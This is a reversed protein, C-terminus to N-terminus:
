RLRQLAIPFHIAFDANKFGAAPKNKMLIKQQFVIKFSILPYIFSFTYSEVARLFQCTQRNQESMKKKM